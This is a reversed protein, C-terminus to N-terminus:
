GSGVIACVLQFWVYAGTKVADLAIRITAVNQVASTLLTDTTKLSDLVAPAAPDLLIFSNTVVSLTNLILDHAASHKKTATLLHMVTKEMARGQVAVADTVPMNYNATMTSLQVIDLFPLRTARPVDSALSLADALEAVCDAPTTFRTLQGPDTTVAVLSVLIDDVYRDFAHLALGLRNCVLPQMVLQVAGLMDQFTASKQTNLQAFRMQATVISTTTDIRDLVTRVTDDAVHAELGKRHKALVTLLAKFVAPKATLLQQCTSPADVIYPACSTELVEVAAATLLPAQDPASSSPGAARSRKAARGTTAAPTSAAVFGGAPPLNAAPQPADTSADDVVAKRKSCRKPVPKSSPAAAGNMPVADDKLSANLSHLDCLFLVASTLMSRGTPASDGLLGMHSLAPDITEPDDTNTMM